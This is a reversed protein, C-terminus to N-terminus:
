YLPPVNVWERRGNMTEKRQYRVFWREFAERNYLRTPAEGEGFYDLIMDCYMWIAEYHEPTLDKKDKRAVIVTGIGSQWQPPAFGNHPEIHIYTIAQNDLCGRTGNDKTGLRHFVVPFDLLAPVPPVTNNFIPHTSPITTASWPLGPDGRCRVIVAQIEETSPQSTPTATPTPTPIPTAKPNPAQPPAIPAPTTTEPESYDSDTDINDWKSYDIPAM